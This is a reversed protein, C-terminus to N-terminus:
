IENENREYIEYTYLGSYSKHTIKGQSFNFHVDYEIPITGDFGDVDFDEDYETNWKMKELVANRMHNYAEKQTKFGRTSNVKYAGDDSYAKWYYM